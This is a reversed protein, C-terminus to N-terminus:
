RTHAIFFKTVPKALASINLNDSAVAIDQTLGNKYLLNIKDLEPDYANNTLEGEVFLYHVDKPDIAHKQILADKLKNIETSHFPIKNIQIRFLKRELLGNTLLRLIPDEHKAWVKVASFIDSDDLEAFTDLLEPNEKLDSITYSNKLFVELAPTCFISKHEDMLHRARKLVNILMHDAAVVTKHLYVQWYMFRRSVIFNEISYVAKEDIVLEDDKVNLMKIIRNSGVDGETVGTYFCDRKLYDLRDMDLQGSILQHLFKKPYEDKFIRIAIDLKGGFERNMQEMFLLSIEEHPVGQLLSHELTHSFPGHGIDHLLIAICAAEEEEKTVEHGKLRITEIARIMLYLAGLAHHFRTHLAGPYVLNTQGLQKIRRLRQFWRHDILDLIIDFPVTIFGYVPDNFVKKKNKGSPSM